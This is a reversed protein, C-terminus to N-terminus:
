VEEVDDADIINEHESTTLRLIEKESSEIVLGEIINSHIQIQVVSQSKAQTQAIETSRSLLEGILLKLNSAHEKKGCLEYLLGLRKVGDFTEVPV